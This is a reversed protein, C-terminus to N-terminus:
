QEVIEVRRNKAKGKDTSNRAVPSASGVGYPKLQKKNVGYKVILENVVANARETSLKINSEFDGVNDTHGVILYQKDSQTNLYEAINKLAEASKSKIESKGTDFHIDYVAIHGKTSIGDDLNDLSIMGKDMPKTKITALSYVTKGDIKGAVVCVYYDVSDTPIKGSFYYNAMNPLQMYEYKTQYHYPHGKKMFAKICEKTNSKPFVSGGNQSIAEEYNKIIELPSRGGPAYCFRHRIYGEIKKIKAKGDSTKGTCVYFESFGIKDDHYCSSGPYTPAIDTKKQAFLNVSTLAILMTLMLISKTKM